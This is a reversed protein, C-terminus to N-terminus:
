KSWRLLAILPIALASAALLSVAFNEAIRLRSSDATVAILFAASPSAKSPCKTPSQLM